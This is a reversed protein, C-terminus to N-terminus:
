EIGAAVSFQMASLDRTAALGSAIRSQAPAALSIGFLAYHRWGMPGKTDCRCPAPAASDRVFHISFGKSLARM